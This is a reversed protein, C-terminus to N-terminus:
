SQPPLQSSPSSTARGSSCPGSCAGTQAPRRPELELDSLVFQVSKRIWLCLPWFAADAKITTKGARQLLPAAPVM